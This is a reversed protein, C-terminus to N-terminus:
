FTRFALGSSAGILMNQPNGTMMAVSGINSSTALAILYPMPPHRRAAAVEIVVPTFVLCVTDNVFLASLAGATLVLAFILGPPHTFSRGAWRALAAFGGALRIHAVLVMMGFLLVITRYDVARVADDFGIAGTVVMLIAGVLAAGTRDIRLWPVR